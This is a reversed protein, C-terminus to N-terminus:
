IWCLYTVNAFLIQVVDGGSDPVLNQIFTTNTGMGIQVINVLEGGYSRSHCPTEIAPNAMFGRGEDQAMRCITNKGREQKPIPRSEM